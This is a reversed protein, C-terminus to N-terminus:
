KANGAFRSLARKAEQLGADAAIRYWHQARERSPQIGLGLEYSQAVHFQALPIVPEVGSASYPPVLPDGADGDHLAAKCFWMFAEEPDRAVGRGELYMRGLLYMAEPDELAARLYYAHAKALDGQILEGQEYLVGLETAASAVRRSAKELWTVAAEASRPVGWGHRYMRGLMQQALPEGRAASAELWQRALAHDAPLGALGHLYFQGLQRQSPLHGADAAQRLLALAAPFDRSVGGGRLYDQALAHQAEAVGRRAYRSRVEFRMADDLALNALFEEAPYGGARIRAECEPEFGFRLSQRVYEACVEGVSLNKVDIPLRPGAEAVPVTFAAVAVLVAVVVRGRVLRLADFQRSM